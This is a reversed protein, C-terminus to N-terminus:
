IRERNDGAALGAFHTVEMDEPIDEGHDGTGNAIDVHAGHDPAFLMLRAHRSWGSHCAQALHKFAEVHRGIAGLAEASRLGNSHLIDDYEQHYAVILDHRDAEILELACATVELDGAESFLDIRRGKFLVEMSSGSPTAIAIRKGARLLSDFLTDCELVRQEYRMIGHGEPPAGTFMSAFCVPTKPPFVSLLPIRLPAMERLAEFMASNEAVATTGIADPCYVLCREILSVRQSRALHLLDGIPRATTLAPLGAGM